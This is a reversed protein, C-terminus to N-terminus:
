PQKIYDTQVKSDDVKERWDDRVLSGKLVEPDDGIIATIGMAHLSSIRMAENVTWTNVMLNRVKAWSILQPSVQPHYPHIADVHLWGALMGNRLWWRMDDYYLLGVRIDPALFRVRLLSMPNFSSILVRDELGWTRILAVTDKELGDTGLRETKLEINLLTGPYQQSLEFLESLKPIQSDLSKIHLYTLKNLTKGYIEFDHFLVLEGDKSRQVDCEIGDLDSEFALTFAEITNEPRKGRVGRHGLLLPLKRNVGLLKRPHWLFFRWVVLLGALFLVFRLAIV